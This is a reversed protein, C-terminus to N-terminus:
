KFLPDKSFLYEQLSNPSALKKGKKGGMDYHFITQVLIPHSLWNQALMEKAKKERMKKSSKGGCFGPPDRESRGLAVVSFCPSCWLHEMFADNAAM